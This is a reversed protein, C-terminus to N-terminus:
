NEKILVLMSEPLGYKLLRSWCTKHQNLLSTIRKDVGLKGLSNKYGEDIECLYNTLDIKRKRQQIFKNIEPIYKKTPTLPLFKSCEELENLEEAEEIIDPLIMTKFYNPYKRVFEKNIRLNIFEETTIGIYNDINENVNELDEEM